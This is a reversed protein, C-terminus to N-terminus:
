RGLASKPARWLRIAMFFLVFFGFGLGFCFRVDARPVAPVSAVQDDLAADPTHFVAALQLGAVTGVSVAVKPADLWVPM